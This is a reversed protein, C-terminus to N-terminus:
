FKEAIGSIEPFPTGPNENMYKILYSLIRAISDGSLDVIKKRRISIEDLLSSHKFIRYWPLSFFQINLDRIEEEMIEIAKKSNLCKLYIEVLEPDPDRNLTAFKNM